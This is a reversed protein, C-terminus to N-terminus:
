FYRSTVAAHTFQDPDALYHVIGAQLSPGIGYCYRAKYAGESSLELTDRTIFLGPRRKLTMREWRCSFLSPHTLYAVALTDFPMFGKALLGKTWFSLWDRSQIALWTDLPSKQGLLDLHLRTIRVSRAAEFPILHLPIGSVLVEEVADPDKHINLDHFHMLPRKGVWFVQGPRQGGVVIIRDIQGVITPDYRLLLAINTLPGLALLTMKRKQLSKHLELVAASIKTQEALPRDGGRYFPPFKIDPALRAAANRLNRFSRDVTELDQNGFVLSIGAVELSSARLAALLAWCDDVDSTMGSGCAPDADIWVAQRDVALLNSVSLAYFTLCLVLFLRM